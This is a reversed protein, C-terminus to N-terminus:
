YYMNISSKKTSCKKPTETKETEQNKSTQENNTNEHMAIILEPGWVFRLVRGNKFFHRGPVLTGKKMLDFLKTRGIKLRKLTEKTTLIESFEYSQTSQDM